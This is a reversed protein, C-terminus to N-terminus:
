LLERVNEPPRGLVARDGDIVVPRQILRPNALMADLWRDRAADERPWEGMGLDRYGDEGTRVLEWPQLDLLELTRVLTARDPPDELYRRVTPEVGAEELLGLTSRSKSCRPNHWIEM